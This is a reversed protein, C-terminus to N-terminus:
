PSSRLYCMHSTQALQHIESFTLYKLSHGTAPTQLSPTSQTFLLINTVSEEDVNRVALRSHFSHRLFSYLEQGQSPQTSDLDQLSFCGASWGPYSLVVVRSQHYIYLCHRAKPFNNDKKGCKFKRLRFM